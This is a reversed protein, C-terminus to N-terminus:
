LGGKRVHTCTHLAACIRHDRTDCVPVFKHKFTYTCLPSYFINGGLARFIYQWSQASTAM